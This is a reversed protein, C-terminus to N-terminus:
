ELQQLTYPFIRLAYHIKYPSCRIATITSKANNVMMGIASLFISFTNFLSTLDGISGNLFLLVDDVFLLHMLICGDTIRIGRLRGRQHEEKLIYSLGEMILLFLLSSLPCGQRLGRESHFFPSAVWNILVSFSVNTICCLIWRIFEYPFGLHTLIMRIYLCNVKYFAKSLYVKLVMGKLKQTQISHLIEQTTGIAEHIQINQLFPIQKASIHNSLIPQLCNAIIKSIIKYICNCLSIPQFDNFSTPNNSKPILAIFTSNYTEYM